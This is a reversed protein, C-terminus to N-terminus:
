RGDVQRAFAFITQTDTGEARQEGHLGVGNEDIGNFAAFFGVVLREAESM